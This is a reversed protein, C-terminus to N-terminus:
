SITNLNHQDCTINDKLFIFDIFREHM